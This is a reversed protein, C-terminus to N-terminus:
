NEDSDLKFISARIKPLEDPDIKYYIDENDSNYEDDFIDSSREEIKEEVIFATKIIPDKNVKNIEKKKIKLTQNHLLVVNESEKTEFINKPIEQM